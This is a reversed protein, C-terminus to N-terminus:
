RRFLLWGAIAAGTLVLAVAYRSKWFWVAAFAGLFIAIAFPVSPVRQLTAWGLQISTAAIIGVVAAAVGSLVRHLREDGVVAELREYFIMSFAFAPLFVGVTMALAGVWGGVVFGVFTCFIVLPAPIIGAFAIGDLFEGDSIQGRGVTDARVYPIATYAGGFTLLGAKLGTWLMPLAGTSSVVDVNGTSFHRGQLHLGLALILAAISVVAALGHRGAKVLAYAAGGGMLVIWFAVGLLTAGFGLIAVVWLWRDELIHSGIKHVARVIVAVVAAQVGLFAGILISMVPSLAVYVWGIGLMIVFGPLMFGLGALLGGIRGRARMGLHVCLEHAEPGPLVQLVALLRNFHANSIWREEDVLERRIMAIQAVPGGFALLGFRLFRTFIAQLSLSPPTADADLITVLM